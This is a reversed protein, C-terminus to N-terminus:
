NINVVAGRIKTAGSSRTVVQAGKIVVHGDRTLIISSAGCQLVIELDAQLVVRQGDVVAEPLGHTAAASPARGAPAVLSDHIWGVIVPLSRDADEFILAVAPLTSLDLPLARLQVLSRAVRPELEGAVTVLPQGEATVATVRGVSTAVSADPWASALSPFMGGM